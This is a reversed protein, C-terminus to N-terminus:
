FLFLSSSNFYDFQKNIQENKRKNEHSNSTSCFSYYYILYQIHVIFQFALFSVIAVTLGPVVFGVTAVVVPDPVVTDPAVVVARIVVILEVTLPVVEDIPDYQGPTPPILEILEAPLKMSSCTLM